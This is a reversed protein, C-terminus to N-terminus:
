LRTRENEKITKSERVYYNDEKEEAISVLFRRTVESVILKM